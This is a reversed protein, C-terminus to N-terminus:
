SFLIRFHFKRHYVNQAAHGVCIDMDNEEFVMALRHWVGESNYTQADSWSWAGTGGALVGISGGTYCGGPTGEPAPELDFIAVGSYNSLCGPGTPWYGITCSSSDFNLDAGFEYYTGAVATTASNSKFDTAKNTRSNLSTIEATTMTHGYAPIGTYTVKWGMSLFAFSAGPEGGSSGSGAPPAGSGGGNPPPPGSPPGQLKRGAKAGVSDTSRLHQQSHLVGSKSLFSSISDKSTLVKSLGSWVERAMIQFSTISEQAQFTPSSFTIVSAASSASATTSSNLFQSKMIGSYADFVVNYHADLNELWTYKHYCSYDHGVSTYNLDHTTTALVNIMVAFGAILMKTVAAVSM